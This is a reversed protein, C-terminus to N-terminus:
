QVMSLFQEESILRTGLKRAAVAKSSTSNEPDAIVLVSLGRGVSSKVTGGANVVMQELVARKNTMAGTFCISKGSLNGVIPKKIVVGNALLEEILQKNHRLGDFLSKARSPGVGSVKEFDAISLKQFDELNKHGAERILKITSQGILPISLGGLLQELSVEHQEWLRKHCTKASKQGMRDISALDDITLKYLASISKAKGSEVLKNLLSEGWELVNLEKIWNALKGVIHSFCEAVNPCQIYEGVEILTANCKPCNTPTELVKKPKEIVEEIFPIVENSRCVLVKAGIGVGLERVNAFNHLSAREVEAGCLEVKPNFIAVPTIRGSNGVSIEIDSIYGEKAVSEFKIALSAYPRSNHSGFASHKAFDNTHAVLGDLLYDYEDRLTEQWNDKRKIVEKSSKCVFFSPVIFGLRQLTTFQQEYTTLDLEDCIVQYCLVTLKDSGEGDFRRSIGSAANRPNSYESFYKQHNAKSLLIEGRVTMSLKESLRLPIGIMRAVNPTLLEGTIGSGRSAAQLFKGDEYIISVSLGDLKLTLLCEGDEVYKDHWKLFEEDTQSKNLSGMEVKHTYKEWNSVPEAGIGIVALNKPDLSSLEDIWADYVKDSVKSQSNYYDNRSQNIKTELEQIRQKNSM